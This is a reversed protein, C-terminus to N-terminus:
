FNRHLDVSDVGLQECARAVQDMMETSGCVWVSPARLGGLLWPLHVQVRGGLADVGAPGATTCLAVAVGERRWGAHEGTFAADRADRVGHLLATRRRTGLAIRANIAQRLPAIGSGQAVLLVDRDSCHEVPFPAGFPAGMWWASQPHHQLDRGLNSDKRVLLEV